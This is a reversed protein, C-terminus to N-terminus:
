RLKEMAEGATAIFRTLADRASRADNIARFVAVRAESLEPRAPATEPHAPAPEQRDRDMYRDELSRWGELDAPLVMMWPQNM